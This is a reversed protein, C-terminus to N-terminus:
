AESSPGKIEIGLRIFHWQSLQTPYYAVGLPFGGSPLSGCPANGNSGRIVDGLIVMVTRKADFTMSQGFDASCSRMM